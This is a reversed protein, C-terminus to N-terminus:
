LGAAKNLENLLASKSRAGTFRSVQVGNKYIIFTPIGSVQNATVKDRQQDADIIDFNWGAAQLEHVIPKQSRCPGCWVATYYETRINNM